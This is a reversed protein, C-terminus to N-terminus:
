QCGDMKLITQYEWRGESYCNCYCSHICFRRNSQTTVQIATAIDAILAITPGQPQNWTQISVAARQNKLSPVTANTSTTVANEAHSTCKM